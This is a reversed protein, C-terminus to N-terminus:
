LNIKIETNSFITWVVVSNTWPTKWITWDDQLYIDKWIDDDIIIDAILPEDYLKWEITSDVVEVTWNAPNLNTFWSVIWNFVGRYTSWAEVNDICVWKIDLKETDNAKAIYFKETNERIYDFNDFYINRYSVPREYQYIRLTIDDTWNVNFQVIDDYATFAWNDHKRQFILTTWQYVRLDIEDNGATNENQLESRLRFWKEWASVTWASITAITVETYNWPWSNTTLDTYLNVVNTTGLTINPNWRRYVNLALMDEASDLTKTFWDVLINTTKDTIENDVYGKNVPHTWLTPTFPTTSDKEIVNTKDAKNNWLSVVTSNNDVRTETYYLNTSWESLNDTNSSTFAYLAISAVTLNFNTVADSSWVVDTWDPTWKTSYDTPFINTM